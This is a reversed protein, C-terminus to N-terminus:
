KEIKKLCEKLAAIRGENRKIEIQVRLTNGRLQYTKANLQIVKILHDVNIELPEKFHLYLYEKNATIKTIGLKKAM